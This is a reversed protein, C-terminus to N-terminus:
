RGFPSFGGNGFSPFGPFGLGNMGNLPNSFSFNNPMVPMMTSPNPMASMVGSPNAPNFPLFGNPSPMYGAPPTPPYYGGAYGPYQGYYPVAYNQYSPAYGISASPSPATPVGVTAPPQEVTRYKQEIQGKYFADSQPWMLHDEAYAGSSLGTVLVSAVVIFPIM